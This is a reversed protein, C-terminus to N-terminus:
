ECSLRWKVEANAPASLTLRSLGGDPHAALEAEAGMAEVQLTQAGNHAVVVQFPEGGIVRATGGLTRAEPDWRVDQLDVWGQLIHRNTSLVQPHPRVKRVSIMACHNPELERTIRATGPLKGLYTDSWFEYAHYHGTPDLGIANDVRQGSIATSVTAKDESTNYLAVQHWDPTLELDYVQPDIVGTFADLPRATQPERYHPYIRSFDHTIESTFLSFSTALDIRGSSLFMM